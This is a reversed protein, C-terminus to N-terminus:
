VLPLPIPPTYHLPAQVNLAPAPSLRFLIDQLVALTAENQSRLGDVTSELAILHGVNVPGDHIMDSPLMPPSHYDSSASSLPHEASVHASTSSDSPLGFCGIHHTVHGFILERPPDKGVTLAVAILSCV